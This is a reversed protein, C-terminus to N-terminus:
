LADRLADLEKLAQQHKRRLRLTTWWVSPGCLIVLVPEWRNRLDVTSTVYWVFLLRGLFAWLGVAVLLILWNSFNEFNM